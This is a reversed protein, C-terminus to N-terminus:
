QLVKQGSKLSVALVERIFFGITKVRPTHTKDDLRYVLYIGTQLASSNEWFFYKTGLKAIGLFGALREGWPFHWLSV